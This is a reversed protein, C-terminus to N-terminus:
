KMKTLRYTPQHKFPKIDVLILESNSMSKIEYRFKIALVSNSFAGTTMLMCVGTDSSHPPTGGSVKTYGYFSLKERPYQPIVQFTSTKNSKVTDNMTAVIDKGDKWISEDDEGVNKYTITLLQKPLSDFRWTGQLLKGISDKSVIIHQQSKCLSVICFTFFILLINRV